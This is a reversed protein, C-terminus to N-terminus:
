GRGWLWAAGRVGSSDGHLAPRIPTVFHDSFVWKAVEDPLREYLEPVRSMGGGLVITDPDLLNVVHALARALRSIYRSFSAEADRDHVALAAVIERGRLFRGTVRRFDQEFGSGSVWTEICGSKGCWCPKITTLEEVTPWPLPNHGWEGAIRHLGDWAAGKIALGAGAGTGLIAAFVVSGGAGAGDAAESVALCNADNAIRVERGLRVELDQLLPQGNIETSNANVARGTKPSLSGPIGFGVSNPGVHGMATLRAEADIVIACLADLIGAYTGRPTDIRHRFIESGPEDLAVIEIKTGGLDVGLRM